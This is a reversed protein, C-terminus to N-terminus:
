RANLKLQLDVAVECLEQDTSVLHRVNLCQNAHSFFLYIDCSLCSWDCTTKRMCSVTSAPVTSSVSIKGKSEEDYVAFLKGINVEPNKEKYKRLM